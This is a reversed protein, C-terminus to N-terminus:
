PHGGDFSSGADNSGADNTGEDSCPLSRAVQPPAPPPPAAAEDQAEINDTKPNRDLFADLIGM